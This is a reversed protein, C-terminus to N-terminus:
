GDRQLMVVGVETVNREGVGRVAEQGANLHASNVELDERGRRLEAFRLDTEDSVVFKPKGSYDGEGKHQKKGYNNNNVSDIM